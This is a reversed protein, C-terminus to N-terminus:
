FTRRLRAAYSGDFGSRHPLVQLSGEPDRFEDPLREERELSFDPRRALFREVQQANEEPELSCTSYVLLGGPVTVTAAGELLRQQVAILATLAGADVRWRADPNRRLTGTGTCPADLLVTASGSFPPRSADAAVCAIPAALRLATERVRNLRSPSRDAAIVMQAGALWLGVAKGGPAACLDLATGSPLELFCTVATAAPDQIIGGSKELVSVLRDVAPLELSSLAPHAPRSDVGIDSLAGATEENTRL